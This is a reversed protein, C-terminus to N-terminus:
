LSGNGSFFTFLKWYVMSTPGFTAISSIFVNNRFFERFCQNLFFLPSVVVVTFTFFVVWDIYHRVNQSKM